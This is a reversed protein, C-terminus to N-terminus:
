SMDWQEIWMRFTESRNLVYERLPLLLMMQKGNIVGKYFSGRSIGDTGQGIVRIGSINIFIVQCRQGM